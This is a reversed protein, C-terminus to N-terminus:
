IMNKKQKIQYYIKIINLNVLYKEFHVLPNINAKKVDLNAQLYQRTNFLPSPNRMEKWGYKFYHLAPDINAHFVDKYTDLYWKADFFDSKRIIDIDNINKRYVKLLLQKIKLM